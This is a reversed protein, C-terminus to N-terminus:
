APVFLRTAADETDTYQRAAADLASAISALSTEVHVQTGRWQQALSGFQTAAAGQWSTELTTLHNMMASVEAAIVQGSARTAAAAGSVAEADVRYQTM